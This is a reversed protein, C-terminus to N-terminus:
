IQFLGQRLGYLMKVKQFNETKPEPKLAKENLCNKALSCFGGVRSWKVSPDFM